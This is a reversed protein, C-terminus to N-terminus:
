GTNLFIDAYIISITSVKKSKRSYLLPMNLAFITAKFFVILNGLLVYHNIFLM